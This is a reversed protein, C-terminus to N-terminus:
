DVMLLTNVFSYSRLMSYVTLIYINDGSVLSSIPVKLDGGGKKGVYFFISSIM